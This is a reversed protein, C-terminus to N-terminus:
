IHPLGRRACRPNRPDTGAPNSQNDTRFFRRFCLIEGTKEWSIANKEGCRYSRSRKRAAQAPILFLPIQLLKKHFIAIKLKVNTNEFAIIHAYFRHRFSYNEAIDLSLPM